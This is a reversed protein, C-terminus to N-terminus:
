RKMALLFSVLEDIDDFEVTVSTSGRATFMFGDDIRDVKLREGDENEFEILSETRAMM